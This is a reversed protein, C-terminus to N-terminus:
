RRVELDGVDVNSVISLQGGGPGDPGNDTISRESQGIGDWREGLVNANGVNVAAQVTVDVTSPLLVTLNGVDVSVQVAVNRNTFDLGSLDLRANGIGLRYTPNLQEVATPRWTVTGGARGAVREGATTIGLAVTLVAGVAILSRARGYWTAVILGAGVITLPLALYASARVDLGSLDAVALAGVALLAGSLVLRPLRSHHRGPPPVASPPVPPGPPISPVPPLPPPAFAPPVDATPSRTDVIPQV